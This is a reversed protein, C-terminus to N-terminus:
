IEEGELGRGPRGERRGGTVEGGRAHVPHAEKIVIQGFPEAAGARGGSGAVSIALLAAAACAFM